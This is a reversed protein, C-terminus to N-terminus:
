GGCLPILARHHVAGVSREYMPGTNGQHGAMTQGGPTNSGTTQLPHALRKCGRVRDSAGSCRSGACRSRNSAGTSRASAGRSEIAVGTCGSARVGASSAQRWRVAGNAGCSGTARVHPRDASVMHGIGRVQQGAARLGPGIARLYPSSRLSWQHKSSAGGNSGAQQGATPGHDRRRDRHALGIPSEASPGQVVSRRLGAAPDFLEEVLLVSGSGEFLTFAPVASRARWDPM